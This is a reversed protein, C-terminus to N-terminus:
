LPEQILVATQSCISDTINPTLSYGITSIAEMLSSSLNAVATLAINCPYTGIPITISSVKSQSNGGNTTMSITDGFENFVSNLIKVNELKEGSTIVFGVFPADAVVLQYSVNGNTDSIVSSAPITINATKAWILDIINSIQNTLGNGSNILRFKIVTNEPLNALVNSFTIINNDISPNGPVDTFYNQWNLGNDTSVQFIVSGQGYDIGNNNWIVRASNNNLKTVSKLTPVISKTYNLINSIYTVGNDDIAINRFQNLGNNLNFIYTQTEGSPSDIFNNGDFYQWQFDYGSDNRYVSVQEDDGIKDQKGGEIWQIFDLTQTNESIKFGWTIQNNTRNFGTKVIGSDLVINYEGETLVLDNVRDTDNIILTNDLQYMNSSPKTHVLVGDKYIRAQKNPQINFFKSFTVSIKNNLISINSETTVSLNEPFLNIVDINLDSFIVDEDITINYGYSDKQNTFSIQGLSNNDDVEIQEASTRKTGNIYFEINTVSSQLFNVYDPNGGIKIEYRTVEDLYTEKTALTSNGGIRENSIDADMGYNGIEYIPLNTVFYAKEDSFDFLQRNFNHKTVIRAYKVGVGFIETNIFQICNSYYILDDNLDFLQLTGSIAEDSQFTIYKAKGDVVNVDCPLQTRKGFEDVIYLYHEQSNVVTNNDNPFLFRQIAGVELIIPKISGFFQINQPNLPDNFESEVRFFKVTSNYWFKQM